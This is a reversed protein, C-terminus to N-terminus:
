AVLLGVIFLLIFVKIIMVLIRFMFGIFGGALLLLTIMGTPVIGKSTLLCIGTILFIAMAAEIVAHLAPKGSQFGSGAEREMGCPHSRECCGYQMEMPQRCANCEEDPYEPKDQLGDDDVVTPKELGAIIKALSTKGGGNPGTVVTLKGKQVTLSVDRLIEEGSPLVWSINQLKLM